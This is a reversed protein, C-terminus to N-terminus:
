KRINPYNCSFWKVTECIGEEIDRFYLDSTLRLLRESSVTKRFQGDSKEIDWYIEGKYGMEKAIITVVDKISNEKQNSIILSEDGEYELLMWVLYRVFDVVYTFQRLPRGSGCVILSSSNNEKALFCKHILAPIVHGDELNFNDFKGYLNGPIVSVYNTGYERNYAKGLVDIMRKSYSYGENSYHPPGLHLKDETIPYTVEEPFICTSMVSILKQVKRSARMVNMNILINNEFFEVGESMNKYLGGVYAALNIVHTPEIIEFLKFVDEYITLDADKSGVFYWEGYVNNDHVYEELNKGILGTGGLVLVKM